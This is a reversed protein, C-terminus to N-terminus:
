DIKSFMSKTEYDSGMAVLQKLVEPDIIKTRSFGGVIFGNRKYFLSREEDLESGVPPQYLEIARAGRKLARKEVEQILIKGVGHNRANKDVYLNQIEAYLGFNYIAKSYSVLALGVQKKNLEAIIGEYHDKDNMMETLTQEAFPLIPAKTLNCFIRSIEQVGDIIFKYDDKNANRVIVSM